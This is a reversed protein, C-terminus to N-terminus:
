ESKPKLFHVSKLCRKTDLFPQKWMHEEATILYSWISKAIKDRGFARIVSVAEDRELDM